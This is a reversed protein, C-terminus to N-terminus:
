IDWEDLAEELVEEFSKGHANAEAAANLASWMVEAELGWPRAAALAQEVLQIKSPRPNNKNAKELKM